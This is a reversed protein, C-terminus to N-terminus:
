IDVADVEFDSGASKTMRCVAADYGCDDLLTKVLMMDSEPTRLGFCVQKLYRRNIVQIGEAKRIIRVEKEYEWPKAKVTLVKKILCIGFEEFSNLSPAVEVFWNSM